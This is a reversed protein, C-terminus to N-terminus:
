GTFPRFQMLLAGRFVRVSFWILLHLFLIRHKHIVSSDFALLFCEGLSWDEESKVYNYFQFDEYFTMLEIHMTMREGFGM